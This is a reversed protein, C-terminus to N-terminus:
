NYPYYVETYPLIPKYNSPPTDVYERHPSFEEIPLNQAGSPFLELLRKHYASFKMRRHRTNLVHLVQAEAANAIISTHEPDFLDDGKSYSAIQACIGATRAITSGSFLKARAIFEPSLLVCASETRIYEKKRSVVCFRSGESQGFKLYADGTHFGLDIATEVMDDTVAIHLDNKIEDLAAEGINRIYENHGRKALFNVGATFLDVMLDLMYESPYDATEKIKKFAVPYEKFTPIYAYSYDKSRSLRNEISNISMNLM